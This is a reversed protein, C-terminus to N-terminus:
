ENRDDREHQALPSFREGVLKFSEDDAYLEEVFIPWDAANAGALILRELRDIKQIRNVAVVVEEPVDGFRIQLLALLDERDNALWIEEQHAHQSSM